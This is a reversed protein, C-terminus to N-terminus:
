VVSKRDRRQPSNPQHNDICDVSLGHFEFIPAKWMCDRKALYDNVTVLHVGNGTLANLYLPLTSVLTKGEGTQMEAVKGQHLVIGGIMQVDYHIMSWSLEKGAVEWRNLWTAQEGEVSVYSKQQAFEKDKETATVTIESNSTFRRATEKVVAFAEPLIDNLVKETANYAEKELNDIASYIEERADIDAIAELETRYSAIKEDQPARADKIKQKFEITKGRLEDHTLSEYSQQLQNIKDVIPRLSKVDKQSKDGVFVKLINNIIDM